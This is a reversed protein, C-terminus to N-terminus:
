SVKRRSHIVPLHIVLFRYVLILGSVLGLTLLIEWITPFYRSTMYLPKYAVLYVNIRNFVVGLVVLLASIFLWRPSRQIKESLLLGFPLLGGFFIEALFFWSETSGDVAYGWAERITLDAFRTALYLGLLVPVYRSFPTLVDMEPKLKFSRAAALSEVIIM